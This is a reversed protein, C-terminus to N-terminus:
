PASGDLDNSAWNVSIDFADVEASTTCADIQSKIIWSSTYVRSIYDMLLLGLTVIQPVTMPVNNNNADRWVFPTPITAGANIAGVIGTLNERSIQDSDFYHSMYWVGIDKRYERYINVEEKRQKKRVILAATNLDNESIVTDLWVIDSYLDGTAYAQVGPFESTLIEIFHSM